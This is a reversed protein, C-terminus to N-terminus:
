HGLGLGLELTCASELVPELPIPFTRTAAFLLADRRIATCDSFLQLIHSGKERAASVQAGTEFLM